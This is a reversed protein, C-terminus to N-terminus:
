GPRGRARSAWRAATAGYLLVLLGYIGLPGTAAPGFASAAIGAAVAFDRMAVPLQIGPRAPAPLRLALLAALGASGALFALLAAAAVLYGVRLQVQAAVEWLLVLLALEGAIRAAALTPEGLHCARRLGAGAALPLAVVLALTALLGAAHLGPAQTLLRLIGGAALVTVVSSGALLTAAVAVEGKALGTLAVSAVESPAVGVALIGERVPGAAVLHGLAWALLPLTVSSAALVAALRRSHARVQGLAAAPVSVGATLVLVALTAEIAGGRDLARGPGPLAVGLAGVVVVLPVLLAELGEALREM